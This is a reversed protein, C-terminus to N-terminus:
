LVQIAYEKTFGSKEMIISALTSPVGAKQSFMEKWTYKTPFLVCTECIVEERQLQDMDMSIIQKYEYRNITRFIFYDEIIQTAYITYESYEKKWAQIQSGRPGGPFVPGDIVDVEERDEMEWEEETPTEEITVPEHQEIEATSPRRAVKRREEQTVPAEAEGRFEAYIDEAESPGADQVLRSKAKEAMAKLEEQNFM